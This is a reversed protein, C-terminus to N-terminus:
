KLLNQLDGEVNSALYVKKTLNELIRSTFERIDKEDEVYLITISKLIEKNIM